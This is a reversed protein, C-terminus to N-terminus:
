IEGFVKDLACVREAGDLVSRLYWLALVFSCVEIGSSSVINVCFKCFFLGRFSSCM